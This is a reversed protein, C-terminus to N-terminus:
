GVTVPGIYMSTSVTNRSVTGLLVNVGLFGAYCHVVDGSYGAPLNVVVSGASRKAANIRIVATGKEPNYVDVYLIDDATAGNEDSNDTWSLSLQGATTSEATLGVIPPLSGNALLAKSYDISFGTDYDGALAHHYNYSVAVNFASAKNAMSKFGLRILEKQPRLFDILTKFKMRQSQQLITNAQKVETPVSRLYDVGNWSGGIVNGIKGSVGGLIGKKITAM